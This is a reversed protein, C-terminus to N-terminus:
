IVDQKKKLTICLHVKEGEIEVLMETLRGRTRFTFLLQLIDKLKLKKMLAVPSAIEDSGVVVNHNQFIKDGLIRVFEKKEQNKMKFM